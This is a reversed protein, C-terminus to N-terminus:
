YTHIPFFANIDTLYFILFEPQILLSVCRGGFYVQNQIM